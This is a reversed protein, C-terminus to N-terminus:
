LYDNERFWRLTDRVTEPFPRSAHGLEGQAKSSDLPQWYEIAELVDGGLIGLQGAIKGVLHVVAPSVPLWPPRRGAEEAAVTMLHRFTVNEGGLIYREGIKGSDVANVHSRAVDRVDVVNHQGQVYVPMLGKAINVFLLGSTPKIDGPGFVATPCLVIVPLGSSLAAEEMAIKVDFYCVPISGLHYIDSENALRGVDATRGITSLSSTYVLRNSGAQRFAEVVREMQQRARNVQGQRDRSTVPYHAAAHFVVDCGQMASRLSPTDNLNATFWSFGEHDALDAIAGTRGEDRRMARVQWGKELAARVVAGGIFGTAGMVLAQRVDSM